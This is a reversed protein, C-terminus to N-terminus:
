LETIIHYYHSVLPAIILYYNPFKWTVVVVWNGSFPTPLLSSTIIENNLLLNIKASTKAYYWLKVM